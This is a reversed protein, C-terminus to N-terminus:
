RQALLGGIFAAIGGLAITWAGPALGGVGGVVGILVGFAVVLLVALGAGVRTLRGTRGTLGLMIAVALLVTVAGASLLPLVPEAVVVRVAGPQVLEALEVYNWGFGNRARGSGGGTNWARFSGLLVFLCGVVTLGVRLLTRTPLSRGGPQVFRGTAQAPRDTGRAEVVFTRERQDVDTPRPASLELTTRAEGKGTSRAPVVVNSARFRFRIEDDPDTAHLSVPAPRNAGNRLVVEFVAGRPDRVAAPELAVELDEAVVPVTVELRVRHVVGTASSRAQIDLPWTGAHAHRDDPMSLELGAAGETHPMLRVEASSSELWPHDRDIWVTVEDVVSSLNAVTVDVTVPARGPELTVATPDVALRL